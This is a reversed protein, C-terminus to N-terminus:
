DNRFNYEFHTFSKTEEYSSMPNLKTIAIDNKQIFNQSHIMSQQVSVSQTMFAPAIYTVM